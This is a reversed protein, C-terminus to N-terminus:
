NTKGITAGARPRPLQRKQAYYYSEVLILPPSRRANFRQRIEDPGIKLADVREDQRAGPRLDRQDGLDGIMEDGGAALPEPRHQGEGGGPHATVFAGAMHIERGADLEHVGGREEVVIDDIVALHPAALLRRPHQPPIRGADQDAIEQEALGELHHDLDARM